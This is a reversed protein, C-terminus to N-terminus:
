HDTLTMLQYASREGRVSTGDEPVSDREPAENDNLTALVQPSLPEVHTPPLKGDCAAM